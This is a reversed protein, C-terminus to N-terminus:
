VSKFLFHSSMFLMSHSSPASHSLIQMFSLWSFSNSLIFLCNTKITFPFMSNISAAFLLFWKHVLWSCIAEKCRKADIKCVIQIKSREDNATLSKNSLFKLNNAHSGNMLAICCVSKSFIEFLKFCNHLNVSDSTNLMAWLNFLSLYSAWWVFFNRSSRLSCITTFVASNIDTTNHNVTITQQRM